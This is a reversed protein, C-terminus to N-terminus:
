WGGESGMPQASGVKSGTEMCGGCLLLLPLSEVGSPLGLPSCLGQEPIMQACLIGVVSCQTPIGPPKGEKLLDQAPEPDRVKTHVGKVPTSPVLSVGGTTRDMERMGVGWIHEDQVDKWVWDWAGRGLTM